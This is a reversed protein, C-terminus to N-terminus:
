GCDVLIEVVVQETEIQAIQDEVVEIEVIQETGVNVNVVENEVVDLIIKSDEAVDVQVECDVVDLDAAEMIKIFEIATKANGGSGITFILLLNLELEPATTWLFNYEGPESTEPAPTTALYEFQTTEDIVRVTVSQGADPRDNKLLFLTLPIDEGFVFPCGM